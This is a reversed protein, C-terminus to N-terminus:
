ATAERDPEGARAAAIQDIHRQAGAIGPQTATHTDRGPNDTPVSVIAKM